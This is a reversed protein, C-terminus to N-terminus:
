DSEIVPTPVGILTQSRPVTVRTSLGTDIAIPGEPHELVFSLAPFEYPKRRRLVSSWGRARIVTENGALRGTQIAHVRM